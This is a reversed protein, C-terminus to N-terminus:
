RKAESIRPVAEQIEITDSTNAKVQRIGVYTNLMRFFDRVNSLTM